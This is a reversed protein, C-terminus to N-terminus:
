RKVLGFKCWVSTHPQFALWLLMFSILRERCTCPVDKCIEQDWCEMSMTAAEIKTKWSEEGSDGKYCHTASWNLCRLHVERSRLSSSALHLGQPSNAPLVPRGSHQCWLSQAQTCYDVLAAQFAECLEAVHLWIWICHFVVWLVNLFTPIVSEKIYSWLFNSNCDTLHLTRNFCLGCCVPSIIVVFLGEKM